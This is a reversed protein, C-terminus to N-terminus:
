FCGYEIYHQELAMQVEVVDMDILEGRHVWVVMLCSKCAVEWVGLFSNYEVRGGFDEIAKIVEEESM